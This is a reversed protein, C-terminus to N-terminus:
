SLKGDVLRWAPLARRVDIVTMGATEASAIGDDSDEFVLCAHPVFGCLEAAMLYGEPHPKGQTVDSGTVVVKFVDDWGMAKLTTQVSHRSGSSVLGVPYSKAWLPLLEGIALKTPRTGEFLKTAVALKRRHIEDIGIAVTRGALLRSITSSATGGSVQLFTKFDIEIGIDGLVIQYARFHHPMTDVLTGDLDFLICDVSHVLPRGSM